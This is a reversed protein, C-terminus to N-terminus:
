WGQIRLLLVSFLVLICFRINEQPSALHLILHHQGQSLTLTDSHGRTTHQGTLGTLGTTALVGWRTSISATTNGGLELGSDRAPAPAAEM